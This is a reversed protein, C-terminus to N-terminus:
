ITLPRDGPDYGEIGHRTRLKAYHRQVAQRRKQVTGNSCLEKTNGVKNRADVPMRSSRYCIKQQMLNQRIWHLAFVEPKMGHPKTYGLLWWPLSACGILTMPIMDSPDAHFAFFAIAGVLVGSGVALGSFALTRATLGAVVKPEYSTVDKHIPVSLM